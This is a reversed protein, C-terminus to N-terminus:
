EDFPALRLLLPFSAYRTLWRIRGNPVARREAKLAALVHRRVNHRPHRAHVRDVWGPDADQLGFGTLDAFAGASVFGAPDHLDTSAGVTIHGGVGAGIAAARHPDTGRDLAFQEAREGGTVAFCRGPTPHELTIDHLISTVFVIEEDVQEGAMQALLHGFIWTRYSHALVHPTLVDRAEEEAERALRSDPVVLADLDLAGEGRRGTALRFRASPYRAIVRLLPAVLAFKQSTSLAGGTRTAWEWDIGEPAPMAHIM